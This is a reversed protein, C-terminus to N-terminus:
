NEKSVWPVSILDIGEEALEKREDETTSGYINRKSKKDYYIERVEKSFNKGVYEFNNEIYNRIKLLTAKEEKLNKEFNKIDTKKKSIISVMPSM